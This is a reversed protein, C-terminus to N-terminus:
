LSASLGQDEFFGVERSATMMSFSLNGIATFHDPEGAAGPVEDLQLHPAGGGGARGGAVDGASVSRTQRRWKAAQRLKSLHERGDANRQRVSQVQDDRVEHRGFRALSGVTGVPRLFGAAQV